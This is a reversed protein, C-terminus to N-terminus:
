ESSLNYSLTIGAEGYLRLHRNFMYTHPQWVIPLSLSNVRRTYYLYDKEDDVRSTNTAVQFGRQIFELDAGVGGVVRQPSYYRWSAGFTIVGWIPKTEQTPEFRGNAMGGGGFFGVTHQATAPLTILLLLLSGMWFRIKKM